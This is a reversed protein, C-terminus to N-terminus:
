WGPADVPEYVYTVIGSGTGWQMWLYYQADTFWYNVTSPNGYEYQINMQYRSAGNTSQQCWYAMRESDPTGNSYYYYRGRGNGNFTMYNVNVGGVPRGNAQVLKWCGNLRRDFFSNWGAPPTPDWADDNDCSTLGAVALIFLLALSLSPFLRSTKM